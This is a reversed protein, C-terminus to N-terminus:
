RSRLKNIVGNIVDTKIALPDIQTGLVTQCYPCVYSVCKWTSRFNVHGDVGEINVHTLIKECKPCKGSAM